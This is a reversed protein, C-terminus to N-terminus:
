ALNEAMWRQHANRARVVADLDGPADTWLNLTVDGIRRQQVGPPLAAALLRAAVQARLSTPEAAILRRDLADVIQDYRMGASAPVDDIPDCPLDPNCYTSIGSSPLIRALGFGDMFTELVQLLADGYRQYRDQTVRLTFHLERAQRFCRVEIREADDDLYWAANKVDGVIAAFRADTLPGVTGDYPRLTTLEPWMPLARVRAVLTEAIDAQFGPRGFDLSVNCSLGRYGPHFKVQLHDSQLPM